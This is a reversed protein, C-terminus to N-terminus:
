QLVHARRQSGMNASRRFAPMGGSSEIGRAAKRALPEFGAAIPIGQEGRLAAARRGLGDRAAFRAPTIRAIVDAAARGLMREDDASLTRIVGRADTAIEWFYGSGCLADAVSNQTLPANRTGGGNISV